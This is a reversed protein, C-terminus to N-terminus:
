RYWSERTSPWMAFSASRKHTEQELMEKSSCYSGMQQQRIGAGEKNTPARSKMWCKIRSGTRDSIDQELKMEGESITMSKVDVMKRGIKWLREVSCWFPGQFLITRCHIVDTTILFKSYIVGYSHVNGSKRSEYIDSYNYSEHWEYTVCVRDLVRIYVYWSWEQMPWSLFLAFVQMLVSKCNKEM